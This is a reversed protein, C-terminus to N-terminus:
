APVPILPLRRCAEHIAHRMHSYPVAAIRSGVGPFRLVDTFGEPAAAALALRGPEAGDAPKFYVALSGATGNRGAAHLQTEVAAAQESVWANYSFESM